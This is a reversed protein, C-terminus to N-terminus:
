QKAKPLQIQRNETSERYLVFKRGIAQVYEAKLKAAAENAVTKPDLEVNDQIKVKVLEHANLYDDMEKLCSQTLENKGIYVAPDIATALSKLYSRQKGTLM